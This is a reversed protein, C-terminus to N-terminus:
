QNEDREEEGGSSAPASSGAAGTTDLIIAPVDQQRVLQNFQAIDSKVVDNWHSVQEDSRQKLLNFVEYSQPTPAADATSIAGALAVLENNLRIPYNLVDQGSKAKSQILADEIPSIRQELKKGADRVAKGHDDNPLRKDLDDIQKKVSNIQNIAEDVQSVQDRIQLLLDFQKQLDAQEIKLRPDEKVELPQTYSKGQVTLRVQYTGPVAIPGQNSGGWLIAGPVKTSDEYRLNWVFRNLGANGTPNQPVQRFFGEGAEEAQGETVTPQKPPYTRIVKGASDLIEVTVHEEKPKGAPVERTVEQKQAETKAGTPANTQATGPEKAAAAPQTATPPQESSPSTQGESSESGEGPKSPNVATKLSYYIIAGSPPNQGVGAARPGGGGFGGGFYRYATSPKYLTVDANSQDVKYERLPTIDDLVWFARGHTAVVLDRDTVALDRMSSMPLNRQISRWHGGDDFSVYVGIETAAYLLGERKPDERVRKWSKGFDTTKYAYPAWDDSEHRDAAVYATGANFHGAEILSIRSYHFIPGSGGDPLDKPTVDAWNKGGDTTVHVLGDDSGAWIAGAQMPSEAITFVTAYYEASTNDQTVPGGSSQETQKNNRTLDPSIEQWHYGRDTTKLILQAGHYITNPDHPSIVIPATWQFRYKLDVDGHGMPNLPWANMERETGLKKNFETISGDYCGAYVVDPDTPWPAIYGSECGGVPNWDVRDIGFHNTAGAIGVSTNDQQAGYIHYPFQNDVIVHYFQATPQNDQSTWHLGGDPSIDAGGDNSNILRKPNTPDIWLGHNDGHPTSLQTFTKGGDISRYSGTNLIYVVDPNKPDAFVHTYYWARQRFRHDDNVLRWHEGGDDSRYLGGKDAEILAYVRNPEASVAVGIRGLVGTPFGNGKIQTWTTGGDASRYLGSGPGGSVMSYPTRYAQWLAAYLVNSNSPDFVVDIAGTQDDKYLVKQWTKGGDTSRFVGRETNRGYAHGLAAIFVIDPNKPNVALRGIHRTDELGIFHWTKGADTSKFVGNGQLINNRICAEGTGVYVVNPDSQAVAIAGVSSFKEKDSMPMWNIGGDTTKWVGGGVGGFYYTDPEGVVGTVALVRGGRFPGVQRWTLGKFQPDEEEKKAQDHTEAASESAAANAQEPQNKRKSSRQASVFPSLLFLLSSIVCLRRLAISM